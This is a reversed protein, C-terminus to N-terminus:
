KKKSATKRKVPHTKKITIKKASPKHSIKHTPKHPTQPHITTPHINVPNSVMKGFSDQMMSMEKKISSLDGGYSGVKNLIELQLKDIIKEMRKVRDTLNDIKIQAISKLENLEEVKKQTKKIKETFVQEAIEMLTDTSTGGGGEYENYDEYSGQPAEQPYYEEQPPFENQYNYNETPIQGKKPPYDNQTTETSAQQQLPQNSISQPPDQDMVSTEMGEGQNGQPPNGVAQKIQSQNLADNIEKPSIGQQQLKSIIENESIGQNKMEGIQELAGM